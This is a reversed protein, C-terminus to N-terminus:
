HINLKITKMWRYALDPWIDVSMGRRMIGYGHGGNPFLHMEISVGAKRLQIYWALANEVKIGDDQTQVIFTPPTRKDVKVKTKLEMDFLKRLDTLYAPYILMAFNPRFNLKDIGDKQEYPEDRDPASVRAALNGGASFGIVGIQNAAINFENSYYRIFRIARAADAVRAVVDSEVYHGVFVSYEKGRRLLLNCFDQVGHIGHDFMMAGKVVDFGFNYDRTTDLVLIPLETAALADICELSPSYAMHVTIIADVGTAEFQAVAEKFEPAIRCIDARVLELGACELSEAVSDCYEEINSRISSVRDDYLKLYFPLFGIKATEM